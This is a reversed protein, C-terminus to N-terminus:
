GRLTTLRRCWLRSQTLLNNFKAAVVKIVYDLDNSRLVFAKILRALQNLAGHFAAWRSLFLNIKENPKGVV